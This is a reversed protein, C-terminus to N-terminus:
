LLLRCVLHRLSQLESTHEESRPPTVNLHPIPASVWIPGGRFWTSEERAHGRLRLTRRSGIELVDRFEPVGAQCRCSSRLACVGFLEGLIKASSQCSATACCHERPVATPKERAAQLALRAPCHAQPRRPVPPRVVRAQTCRGQRASGPGDAWSRVLIQM